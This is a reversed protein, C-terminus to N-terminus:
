IHQYAERAVDLGLIWWLFTLWYSKVRILTLFFLWGLGEAEWSFCSRITKSPQNRQHTNNQTSKHPAHTSCEHFCMSVVSWRHFSLSMGNNIALAWTVWEWDLSPVFQPWPPASSSGSPKGDGHHHIKSPAAPPWGTTRSGLGELLMQPCQCQQNIMLM